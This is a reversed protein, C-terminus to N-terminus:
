FIAFYKCSLMEIAKSKIHCTSSKSLFKEARIHSTVEDYHLLSVDLYM